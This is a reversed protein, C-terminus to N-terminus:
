FTGSWSQRAEQVVTPNETQTMNSPVNEFKVKGVRTM